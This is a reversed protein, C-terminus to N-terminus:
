KVSCPPTKSEDKSEILLHAKVAKIVTDPSLTDPAPKASCVAYAWPLQYYWLTPDTLFFLGLTPVRAAAAIHLLGGDPCIWLDLGQLFAAVETLHPAHFAPLKQGLGACVDDYIGPEASGSGSLLQPPPIVAVVSIGPDALLQKALRVWHSVPWLREPRDPNGGLYIGVHLKGPPLLTARQARVADYARDPISFEPTVDEVPGTLPSVLRTFKQVEPTRDAPTAVEHTALWRSWTAGGYFPRTDYAWIRRAGVARAFLFSTFSPIRGSLVIALDFQQARLEQIFSVTRAGRMAKKDWVWLRALRAYYEMVPKLYADVLMHIEAKPFTHTLARIAPTALILDGFGQHPRLLLIRPTPKNLLEQRISEPSMKEVSFLTGVVAALVNRGRDKIRV